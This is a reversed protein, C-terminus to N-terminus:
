RGPQYRLRPIVPNWEPQFAPNWFQRPIGPMSGLPGLSGSIGEILGPEQNPLGHQGPQFKKPQALCAILGQNPKVRPGRPAILAKTWEQTPIGKPPGPTVRPYWSPLGLEPSKAFPFFPGARPGLPLIKGPQLMSQHRNQLSDPGPLPLKQVRTKRNWSRLFLTEHFKGPEWPLFFAGLLILKWPSFSGPIPPFIPITPFANRGNERKPRPGQQPGFFRPNGWNPAPSCGSFPPGL